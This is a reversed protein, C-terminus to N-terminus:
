SLAAFAERTLNRAGGPLAVVDDEIRVGGFPRLRDVAAWDILGRRGDEAAEALLLDIFYVGPEITVVFGDELRRTLRLFPHGEPRPHEGGDPGAMLGGVDHVQLGLLHGIGHPFFVRTVGADVATGAPCRLVGADALVRAVADHAALQLERYDLGPRVAAALARQEEDVAAVLDAFPGPQRAYSRTVDSAYGAYSAGADILFASAPRSASRELHQYHLVAGHRDLAVISRYPLDDETLAAARLYALHIGYESEGARFAAAAAAHARAALASARAICEIEYPTKAARAYDLRNLLAPPNRDGRGEWAPHREGVIAWRRGPELFRTLEEPNGIVELQFHETWRDEPVAPPQHWYDAAQHFLLQLREGPRFVVYSGPEAVPAWLRFQPNARFPYPNDDFVPCVPLGAPVVLGEFGSAELASATRAAVVALHQRYLDDLGADM